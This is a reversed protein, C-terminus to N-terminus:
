RLLALTTLWVFLSPAFECVLSDLHKGQSGMTVGFLGADSYHQSFATFYDALGETGAVEALRSSSNNGVGSWKSYDGVMERVLQLVIADEDVLSVGDYGITVLVDDTTDDRETVFSGYYQSSENNLAERSGM